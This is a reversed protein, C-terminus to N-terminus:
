ATITKLHNGRYHKKDSEDDATRAQKSGVVTSIQHLGTAEVGLPKSNDGSIM